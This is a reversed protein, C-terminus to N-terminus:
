TDESGAHLSMYNDGCFTEHPQPALTQSTNFDQNLYSLKAKINCSEKENVATKRHKMYYLCFMCLCQSIFGISQM